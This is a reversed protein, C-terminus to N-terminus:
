GADAGRLVPKRALQRVTETILEDALHTYRETTAPNVHGAERMRISKDVGQAVMETIRTHRTTYPVIREGVVVAKILGLAECRKVLRHFRQSFGDSKQHSRSLGATKKDNKGKGPLPFVYGAPAGLRAKRARLVEEVADLMTIARRKRVKVVEPPLIIQHRDFQVYDWQLLRLEGPRMGTYRLVILQERFDEAGGSISGDACNDLLAAFEQPTLIRERPKEVLYKITEWPNVIIGYRRNRLPHRAWNLMTKAVRICKNTRAPGVGVMEQRGRLWKKEKTLFKKYALGDEYTISAVPRNGFREFWPDLVDRYGVYTAEATEVKVMSLFDRHLEHGLAAGIVAPGEERSVLLRRLAKQATTFGKEVRCLRQHPKGGASTVYWGDKV